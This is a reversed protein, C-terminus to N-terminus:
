PASAWNPARKEVFARIGEVPEPHSMLETLYIREARLLREMEDARAARRASVLAPRPHRVLRELFRVADEATGVRHILGVSVAHYPPIQEGSLILDLARAPHMSLPLLAAAVPPFVGLSIEPFSLRADEAAIVFDCAIALELAGGMAAGHLYACSPIELKRLALVARTLGPLMKEVIGPLHEAVDAGASFHRGAGRLLVARADSAGAREVAGTIEDLVKMTLVNVPPNRFEIEAIRGRETLTVHDPLSAEM